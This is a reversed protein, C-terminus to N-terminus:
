PRVLHWRPMGGHRIRVILHLGIGLRERAEAPWYGPRDPTTEDLLVFGAASEVCGLVAVVARAGMQDATSAIFKAPGAKPVVRGRHAEPIVGFALALRRIAMVIPLNGLITEVCIRADVRNRAAIRPEMAFAAEAYYERRACWEVHARLHAPNDLSAIGDLVAALPDIATVEIRWRPLPKFYAPTPAAMM